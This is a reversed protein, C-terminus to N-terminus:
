GRFGPPVLAAIAAIRAALDLGSGFGYRAWGLSQQRQTDAETQRGQVGLAEARIMMLTALLAANEAKMAVPISQTTLQLAADSRGQSLALAALQMDIHAAQVQADPLGRYLTASQAFARVAMTGDQSLSARGLAFLSFAMRSDRWGSQTAIRVAAKAARLRAPPSSAPAFATDVARKWSDPTPSPQAPGPREGNPNLRALIAPLRAAVDAESMGNSLAPDYHVRLMLMDFGTLVTHFNDDNFVTDSLRYLDNLPGIAQALEEHLCDRMEQPSVDSPIFIAAKDRRLLRTWDLDDSGRKAQYAPWTSIGPIVFCAVGPDNSQLVRRPLFTITLAADGPTPILTVGAESQLRATLRAVEDAAMPPIDGMLRVTIGPDFRTFVPLRRGSELSFELELFDVALSANSRLPPMGPSPAFRQIPPLVTPLVITEIRTKTVDPSPNPGPAPACAALGGLILSGILGRIGRIPAPFIPPRM